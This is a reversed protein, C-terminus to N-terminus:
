RSVEADRGAESAIGEPPPPPAADRRPAGFAVDEGMFYPTEGRFRRKYNRLVARPDRAIAVPWLWPMLWLCASLFGELRRPTAADYGGPRLWFGYWSFCIWVPAFNGLLWFAAIFSANATAERWQYFAERAAAERIVADVAWLATGAYAASFLAVPITTLALHRLARGRSPRDAPDYNPGAGLPLDAAALPPSKAVTM